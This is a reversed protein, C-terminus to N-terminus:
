DIINCTFVLNGSGRGCRRLLQGVTIDEELHEETKTILHRVTEGVNNPKCLRCELSNIKVKSKLESSFSSTFSLVCTKLGFTPFILQALEKALTPSRNGQSQVTLTPPSNSSYDFPM